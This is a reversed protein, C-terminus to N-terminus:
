AFMSLEPSKGSAADSGGGGVGGLLVPLLEFPITFRLEDKLFAFM